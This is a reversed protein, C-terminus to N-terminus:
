SICVRGLESAHESDKLCSSATLRAYTCIYGHQAGFWTTLAAQLSVVLRCARERIENTEEMCAYM